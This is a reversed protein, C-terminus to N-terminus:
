KLIKAADDHTTSLFSIGNVELIQDGMQCCLFVCGTERHMLCDGGM